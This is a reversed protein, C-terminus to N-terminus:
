EQYDGYCSDSSTAGEWEHRSACKKAGFTPIYSHDERDITSAKENPEDIDADTVDLGDDTDFAADLAYQIDSASFNTLDIGDQNLLDSIFELDRNNLSNGYENVLGALLDMLDDIM